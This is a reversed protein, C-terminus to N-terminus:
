VRHIFGPDYGGNDLRLFFSGENNSSTGITSKSLVRFREADTAKDKM